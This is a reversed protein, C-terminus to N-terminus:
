GFIRDIANPTLLINYYILDEIRKIPFEVKYGDTLVMATKDQISIWINEKSFHIEIFNEENDIIEFGKFLVKELAQKYNLLRLNYREDILDPKELIYGIDDCPILMELKLPEKLFNAYAEVREVFQDKSYSENQQQLVFDTMSILKM